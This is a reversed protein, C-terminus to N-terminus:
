VIEEPKVVGPRMLGKPRILAPPPLWNNGDGNANVVEKHVRFPEMESKNMMLVQHDEWTRYERYFKTWEDWWKTIMVLPIQATLGLDDYNPKQEKIHKVREAMFKIDQKSQESHIIIEKGDLYVDSVPAGRYPHNRIILEEAM